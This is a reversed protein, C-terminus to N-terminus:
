HRDSKGQLHARLKQALATHGDIELTRAAAILTEWAEPWDKLILGATEALAPLDHWSHAADPTPEGKFGAAVAALLKSLRENLAALRRNSDRLENCEDIRDRLKAKLVEILEDSM